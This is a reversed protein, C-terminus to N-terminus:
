QCGSTPDSVQLDVQCSLSARGDFSVLMTMVPSGDFALSAVRHASPASRDVTMDISGTPFTGPMRSRSMVELQTTRTGSWNGQGDSWSLTSIGSLTQRLERLDGLVSEDHRSVTLVGDSAVVTGSVVAVYRISAVAPGWEETPRGDELMLQYSRHYTLTGAVLPPCAFRRSQADFPCRERGKLREPAIPVGLETRAFSSLQDALQVHSIADDLPAFKPVTPADCGTLMLAAGGVLIARKPVFVM